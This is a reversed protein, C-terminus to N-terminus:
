QRMWEALEGTEAWGKWGNRYYDIVSKMQEKTLAGVHVFLTHGQPSFLRHEPVTKSWLKAALVREPALGFRSSWAKATEVTAHDDYKDSKGTMITVFVVEGELEPEVKKTQQTQWVCPQCWTAAYDVWVFRGEFQPMRVQENSANPREKNRTQSYSVDNMNGVVNELGRMRGWSRKVPGPDDCGAALLTATALCAMTFLRMSNSIIM